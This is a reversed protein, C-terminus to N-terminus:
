ILKAATITSRNYLEKYTSRGQLGVIYSPDFLLQSLKVGLNSSYKVGFKVPIFTGAPAGFVEGPLL